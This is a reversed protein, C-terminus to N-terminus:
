SAGEVCRVEIEVGYSGRRQITPLFRLRLERPGDSLKKAEPAIRKRQEDLMAVVEDRVGSVSQGLNDDDLDKPGYRTIQVEVPFQVARWWLTGLASLSMYRTDHREQKVRRAKAFHNERANKTGDLRIPFHWRWSQPPALAPSPATM